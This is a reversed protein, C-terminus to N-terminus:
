NLKNRIEDIESNSACCKFMEPIYGRDNAAVLQQYRILDVDLLEAVQELSSRKHSKRNHHDIEILNLGSIDTGRADLEISIVTGDYDLYEKYVDLKVGWKLKKDAFAKSYSKYNLSDIEIFGNEILIDKIIVMELDSGDLLFLIRKMSNEPFFILHVALILSM